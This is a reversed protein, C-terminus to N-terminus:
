FYLFGMSNQIMMKVFNRMLRIHLPSLYVQACMVNKKGPILSGRKPWKKKLLSKKRDWECLGLLLTQHQTDV